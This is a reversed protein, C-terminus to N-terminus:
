MGLMAPDLPTGQADMGAVLDAVIQEVDHRLAQERLEAIGARDYFRGARVLAVPRRLCTIDEGPDCEYFVIDAVCGAELCGLRGAQGLAQAANTTASTLAEVPTLGAEVLLELEDLLADGPINTFIGADSGAVLTVGADQMARTMRGYFAARQAEDAPDRAAWAAINEAETAQIVPNLLETGDRRAYAGDSEAVRVLNRHAVLTPTVVAGSAAIRAVLQRGATEELSSRLGHFAISETHEITEFDANLTEDISVLFDRDFPIGDERTGEVPHGTVVMGFARAEALAAGFAEGTLNSYLKIRRFGAAHQARVAERAEAATTVMVHNIQVNPGPSNLIPGSTFLNPGELEGRAIQEAMRLHFPMGSLNRVTTVGHALYASLEAQGWIHVHMDILGPVAYAGRLDIHTAAPDSSDSPAGSSVITGAEVVISRAGPGINDLVLTEQAMAPAAGVALAIALVKRIIARRM